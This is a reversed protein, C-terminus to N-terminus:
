TVVGKIRAMIWAVCPAAVSNGLAKKRGTDSAGPISTWDKSHIIQHVRSKSIGYKEALSRMTIEGHKYDDCIQMATEEGIKTQPNDDGTLYCGDEKAKTSNEKPTLLQLNSLSNDLKVNNIHDVEM